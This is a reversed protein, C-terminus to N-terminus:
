DLLKILDAQRKAYRTPRPDRNQREVELVIWTRLSYEGNYRHWGPKFAHWGVAEDGDRRERRYCIWGAGAIIIGPGIHIARMPSLQPYPSDTM